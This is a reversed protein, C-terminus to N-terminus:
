IDKSGLKVYYNEWTQLFFWLNKKETKEKPRLEQFRHGAHNDEGM